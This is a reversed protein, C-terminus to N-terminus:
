YFLIPVLYIDVQEQEATGQEISKEYSIDM